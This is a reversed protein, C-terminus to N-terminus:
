LLPTEQYNIDDAIDIISFNEIKKKYNKSIKSFNENTEHFCTEHFLKPRQSKKPGFKTLIRAMRAIKRGNSSKRNELRM